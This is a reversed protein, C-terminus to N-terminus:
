ACPRRWLPPSCTTAQLRRVREIPLCESKDKARALLFALSAAGFLRFRWRASLSGARALPSGPGGAATRAHPVSSRHSANSRTRLSSWSSATTQHTMEIPIGNLVFFRRIPEGTSNFVTLTFSRRAAPTGIMAAAFWTDLEISTSDAGGVRVTCTSPTECSTRYAGVTAIPLGDITLSVHQGAALDTGPCLFGECASSGPPGTEGRDGKPGAPGTEGRDGREGAPGAPGAPGREGAPLRGAAFDGAKLSGNAVKESTVANSKLQRKGVSNAPLTVAAWSVGRARRVASAFCRCNRLDAQFAIQRARRPSLNSQMSLPLPRRGRDQLPARTVKGVATALRRSPDFGRVSVIRGM